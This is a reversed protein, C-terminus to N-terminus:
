RAERKALETKAKKRFRMSKGFNERLMAGRGKPVILGGVYKHPVFVWEGGREM